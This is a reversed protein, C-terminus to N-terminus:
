NLSLGKSGREDMADIEDAHGSKVTQYISQMELVQQEMSLPYDSLVPPKAIAGAVCSEIRKALLDSDGASFIADEALLECAGVVDSSIVQVGECLAELVIFGFTERCISPVVVVDLNRLTSLMENPTVYGCSKAEVIDLDGYDDGYLRLEFKIGDEHLLRASNILTRFGKYAKKGGFYGIVLEQRNAHSAMVKKKQALGAHSIRALRYNASPFVSRYVKETAESNSLVLYFLEFISKNYDLLQGYASLESDNLELVASEIGRSHMGEKVASSIKKILGSSKLRAYLRTQMLVSKKFSMGGQCCRSCSEPGAGQICNEGVADIFTCRPCMPYYDHTTFVIPVDQKKAVQFFERYIGMYSHVHIIDPSIESLISEFPKIDSCEKTFAKPDSVGFTLAVPLPNLLEYTDVGHWVGRKFRTKGPLFRGPYLLSVSHGAYVQAEMLETCYRTLGGTRLPPLGLSVHLINM